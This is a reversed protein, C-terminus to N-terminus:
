VDALNSLFGELVENFAQPNEMNSIHGAGPIVAKSAGSIGEYLIDAVAHNDPTDLEGIVVLTPVAIDHLRETMPHEGSDCDDRQHNQFFSASNDHVIEALREAVAPNALAPGFWPLKLWLRKAAEPDTKKTDIIEKLLPVTRPWAYGTLFSDVPVLASVRQPSHIAFNIAIGGGISLGVLRARDVGLHDLLAHLDEHHAYPSSPQDPSKGCGRQDYRIVRHRQAFRLFQDDWMRHDLTNAHILVLAPGVGAEEYYFRSGNVAVIENVVHM